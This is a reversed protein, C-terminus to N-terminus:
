LGHRRNWLDCVRRVHKQPLMPQNPLAVERTSFWSRGDRTRVELQWFATSGPIAEVYVAKCKPIGRGYPCWAGKTVDAVEKGKVFVKAWLTDPPLDRVGVLMCYAAWAAVTSKM